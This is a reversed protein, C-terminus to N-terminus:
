AGPVHLLIKIAVPLEDSLPDKSGYMLRGQRPKSLDIYSFVFRREHDFSAGHSVDGDREALWRMAAGQHLDPPLLGSEPLDWVRPEEPGLGDLGDKTRDLWYENCVWSLGMLSLVGSGDVDRAALVVGDLGNVRYFPARWLTCESELGAFPMPTKLGMLDDFTLAM